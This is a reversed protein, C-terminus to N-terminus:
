DFTLFSRWRNKATPKQQPDDEIGMITRALAGMQQGVRSEPRVLSGKM